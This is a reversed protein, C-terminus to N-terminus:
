MGAISIQLILFMTATVIGGLFLCACWKAIIPANAIGAHIPVAPLMLVYAVPLFVRAMQRHRYIWCKLEPKSAYQQTISELAGIRRRAEIMAAEHSLGCDAAESEIDEVHDRLESIARVVHQPAVGAGLLRDRLMDYDPRPM